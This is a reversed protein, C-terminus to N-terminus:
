KVAVVRRFQKDEKGAGSGEIRAIYLGSSVYAGQRNRGDWNLEVRGPGSSSNNLSTVYQGGADYIKIAINVAIGTSAVFKTPEVGVHFPNPYNRVTDNFVQGSAVSSANSSAGPNWATQLTTYSARLTRATGSPNTIVNNPKISVLGYWEENYNPDDTDGARTFFVRTDQQTCTSGAAPDKWWEDSWEFWLAGVLPKSADTSSLNANIETWQPTLYRVQMAQDESHTSDNYADKGFEALLVPKVTSSTMVEFVGQFTKGRYATIGWIDLNPLSADDAHKVTNGITYTLPSATCGTPCEGEVTTYPHQADATKAAGLVTNVYPYWLNYQGNDLNQENGFSWMLVAPHDKYANIGAIFAAQNTSQFSATSPDATHSPYYSMIVFLGNEYAKDLMARVLSVNAPSVDNLIDYTRITNAGMKKILPFDAIYSSRDAWWADGDLCGAIGGIASGVPLPEYNVGRVTFPQGNVTLKRGSV